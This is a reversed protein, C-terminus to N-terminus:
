KESQVTALELKGRKVRAMKKGANDAMTRNTPLYVKLIKAVSEIDHGSWSAIEIPTCGAEGLRVIGTRRLDRFQMEKDIKAKDCLWRFGKSLTEKTFPKENDKCILMVPSGPSRVLRDLVAKLKPIRYVPIEVVSGTKKQAIRWWKGDYSNIAAARIDQPRQTSYLGITAADALDQRKHAAAADMLAKEQDHAWVQRRPRPKKIGLEAFPNEVNFQHNVKRAHKFLARCTSAIASPKRPNASFSTCFNYAMSTTTKLLPVDGLDNHIDKFHGNYNVQTAPAMDRYLQSKKFEVVLWDWTGQEVQRSNDDGNRWCVLLDYLTQAKGAAKVKNTGLAQARLNKPTDKWVGQVKYKKKPEWFHYEKGNKRKTVLYQVKIIGM